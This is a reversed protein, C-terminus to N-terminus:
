LCTQIEKYPNIVENLKFHSNIEIAGEVLSLPQINKTFEFAPM